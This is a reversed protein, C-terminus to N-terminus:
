GKVLSILLRTCLCYAISVTKLALPFVLADPYVQSRWGSGWAQLFFVSFLVVANLSLSINMRLRPWGAVTNDEALALVSEWTKEHRMLQISKSGSLACQVWIVTQTLSSLLFYHPCSSWDSIKINNWLLLASSYQTIKPSLFFPKCPFTSNNPGHKACIQAYHIGTNEASSCFM